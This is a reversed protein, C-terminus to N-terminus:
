KKHILNQIHVRRPLEATYISDLAKEIIECLEPIGSARELLKPTIGGWIIVHFHLAGRDQTEITGYFATAYGFIGKHHPNNLSKSKFYFTRKTSSYTGTQFNLPCGILIQMVNELLVMFEYATVVPNDISAKM